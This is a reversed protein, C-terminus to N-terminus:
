RRTGGPGGVWSRSAIAGCPRRVLSLAAIWWAMWSFARTTTGPPRVFWSPLAPRERDGDLRDHDVALVQQQDAEDVIRAGRLSSVSGLRVCSVAAPQRVPAAVRRGGLASSCPAIWLRSVEFSSCFAILSSASDTLSSYWDVLSSSSVEFSSSCDSFSSSVARLLWSWSVSSRCRVVALSRCFM